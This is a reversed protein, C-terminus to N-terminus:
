TVEAEVHGMFCEYLEDARDEDGDAESLCAHTMASMGAEGNTTRKFADCAIRYLEPPLKGQWEVAMEVAAALIADDLEDDPIM